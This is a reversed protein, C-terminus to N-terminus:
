TWNTVLREAERRARADVRFVDEITQIKIAEEQEVITAVVKYIDQYVIASKLFASVAIENAANLAITAAQGARQADLALTLCPFREADPEYFELNACDALSLPAVGSTIREPWGLAHAIPVCMDPHGLHALVSGDCYSVMAHVLSQPHILVKVQNPSLDFLFCAEIVELGKNMMTASDVSIKRGMDWNPHACAQEPTVSALQELPTKLFPGGSATLTIHEVGLMPQSVSQNALCQLVANHESDIPLLRAGSEAAATLLLEGAMVLAEKNALLVNKGADAAALTSPLGAGGVIAAMVSDVADLQVVEVLGNEASLLQPSDAIGKLQVKFTAAAAADTVVVYQPKFQIVQQLLLDISQHASLAVVKFRDPNRAIVDLTSRGISGTSGLIAVGTTNKDQAM